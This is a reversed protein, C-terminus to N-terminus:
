VSSFLRSPEVAYRDPRLVAASSSFPSTSIRNEEEVDRSIAFNPRCVRLDAIIQNRRNASVSGAQLIETRGNAACAPGAGSSENHLKMTRTVEVTLQLVFSGAWLFESRKVRWQVAPSWV